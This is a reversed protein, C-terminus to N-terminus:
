DIFLSLFYLLAGAIAAWVNVTDVPVQHHVLRQLQRHRRPRGNRRPPPRRYRDHYRPM